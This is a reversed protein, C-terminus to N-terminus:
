TARHVPPAMLDPGVPDTVTVAVTRDIEVTTADDLRWGFVDALLDLQSPRRAGWLAVTPERDLVWRLAAALVSRCHRRRARAALHEVAAIFHHFRPERIKPDARHLDDGDWHAQLTLTGTFFGSSLSGHALVTLRNRIVHALVDKEIGTQITRIGDNDNGGDRLWGAMAWTGLAIWPRVLPRDCAAIIEGDLRQTLSQRAAAAASTTTLDAGSGKRQAIREFGIHSPTTPKAKGQNAHNKRFCQFQGCRLLHPL